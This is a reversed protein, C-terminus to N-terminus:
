KCVYFMCSTRLSLSPLPVSKLIETSLAQFDISAIMVLKCEADKVVNILIHGLQVFLNDGM